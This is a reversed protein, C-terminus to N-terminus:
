ARTLSRTIGQDFKPVTAEVVVTVERFQATFDPHRGEANQQEFRLGAGLLQLTRAVVLEFLVSDFDKKNLDHCISSRADEPLYSINRNLFSRVQTARPHTARELYQSVSEGRSAWTNDVEEPEPFWVRDTM